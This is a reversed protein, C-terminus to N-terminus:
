RVPSRLVHSHYHIRSVFGMSEYLARAALNSATVSLTAHSAGQREFASQLAETLCQRALGKRRSAPSTAVESVHAVGPMPWTLLCAALATGDREIRRSALSDFPGCVEDLMIQRLIRTCSDLTDFSSSADNARSVEHADFILRALSRLDLRHTPRSRPAGPGPSEGARFASRDLTMYIRPASDFGRAQFPDRLGPETSFLTQCDVIRPRDKLLRDLVHNVLLDEVGRGRSRSAAFFSGIVGQEDHTSYTAYACPGRDDLAVFGNVTGERLANELRGRSPAFSWRLDTAWMAAEEDLLPGLLISPVSEIPQVARSQMLSM